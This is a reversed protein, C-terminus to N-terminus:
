GPDSYDKTNYELRAVDVLRDMSGFKKLIFLSEGNYSSLEKSM